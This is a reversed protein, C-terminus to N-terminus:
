EKDFDMVNDANLYTYDEHLMNEYVIPKDKHGNLDIQLLPKITNADKQWRVALIEADYKALLDKLESLFATKPDILEVDAQPFAKATSVMTDGSVYDGEVYMAKYIGNEGKKRFYDGVKIENM